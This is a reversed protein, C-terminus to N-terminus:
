KIKSKGRKENEKIEEYIELAKIKGEIFRREDRLRELEQKITGLNIKSM